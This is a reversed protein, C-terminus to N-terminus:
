CRNFQFLSEMNYSYPMSCCSAGFISEVMSMHVYTSYILRNNVLTVWMRVTLMDDQTNTCVLEDDLLIMNDLVFM